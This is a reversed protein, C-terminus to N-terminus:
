LRAVIPNYQMEYEASVGIERQRTHLGAYGPRHGRQQQRRHYQRVQISSLGPRTGPRPAVGLRAAARQLAPLPPSGQRIFSYALVVLRALLVGRAQWLQRASSSLQRKVDPPIARWAERLTHLTLEFEGSRRRDTM